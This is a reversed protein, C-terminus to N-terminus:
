LGNGCGGGGYGGGGLGDYFGGATQGPYAPGAERHPQPTYSYRPPTNRAALVQHKANTLFQIMRDVNAADLDVWSLTQGESTTHIRVKGEHTTTVEINVM